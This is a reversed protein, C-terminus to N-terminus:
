QAPTNLPSRDVTHSPTVVRRQNFMPRRMFSPIDLEDERKKLGDLLQTIEEDEGVGALGTKSAFGTAILTIKIEKDMNPDHAVGFIINAEPDVAQKIVAAAENVEFLTLNNSGVVNFLVGKSGGASVDLLPSALAEKAADVARNQGSGRGISMWAPGADQMVAKVDAFDLNIMGPVTIVESIAQVGHRLVDDALRFANDVGTKQDCLDLLRDNPIIILTDVKSLLQIIGEDAVLCRHSGEFTFPKTVVAITLAGSSKSIEAIVPASGTGTGGGMGCTIFVMDAGAVVEKLEDRTEEAARRGLESDGGVGLGKTLREGLQIRTPAETLAMAQADTNMAIFEVGQIEEQVMRTIANCGGGGLGIVKIRAPNPTFSSKAM